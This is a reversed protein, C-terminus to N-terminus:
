LQIHGSSSRESGPGDSRKWYVGFMCRMVRTAARVRGRTEENRAAGRHVYRRGKTRRQDSDSRRAEKTEQVMGVWM